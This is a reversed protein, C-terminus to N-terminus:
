LSKQKYLRYPKLVSLDIEKPCVNGEDGTFKHFLNRMEDTVPRAFDRIFLDGSVWSASKIRM